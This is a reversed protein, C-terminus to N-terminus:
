KPAPPKTDQTAKTAESWKRFAHTKEIFYSSGLMKQALKQLARKEPTLSALFAKGEASIEHIIHEHQM